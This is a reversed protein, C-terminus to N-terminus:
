VKKNKFSEIRKKLEANELRLKELEEKEAYDSALKHAMPHGPAFMSASMDLLGSAHKLYMRNFENIKGTFTSNEAIMKDKLRTPSSPGALGPPYRLPAFPSLSFGFPYGHMEMFVRMQTIDMNNSDNFLIKAKANRM